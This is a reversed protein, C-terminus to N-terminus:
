RVLGVLQPARVLGTQEAVKRGGQFVAFYPIGRIGLRAAVDPNQETDVKLVVARGALAQAAKAVEPAAMRCPGCWPAWFDVLVPVPSSALVNDFTATDAEVPESLTGLPLHCKGCTGASPLKAPAIRNKQGCNSCAIIM